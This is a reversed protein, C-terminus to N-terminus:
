RGKQPKKHEPLKSVAKGKQGAIFEAAQAQTIGTKKAVQPNHKAAQMLKFQAKSKAPM